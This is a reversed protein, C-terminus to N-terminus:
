RKGDKSRAHARTHRPRRTTAKRSKGATKAFFEEAVAAAFANGLMPLPPCAVQPTTDFAYFTMGDIWLRQLNNVLSSLKRLDTVTVGPTKTVENMAPNDQLMLVGKYPTLHRWTFMFRGNFISHELKQQVRLKGKYKVRKELLAMLLNVFRIHPFPDDKADRAETFAALLAPQDSWRTSFEEFRDTFYKTLGAAFPSFEDLRKWLSKVRKVRRFLFVDCLVHLRETIADHAGDTALAELTGHLEFLLMELWADDTRYWTAFKEWDWLRDFHLAKVQEAVRQSAASLTGPPAGDLVALQYTIRQLALDTRVVNHHNIIWRFQRLREYFFHELAAIARQDFAPVAIKDYGVREIDTIRISEIIRQTDIHGLDRVGSVHPDRRLYDLRDCDVEGSVLQGFPYWPALRNYDEPRIVPREAYHGLQDAALIEAAANVCLLSFYGDENTQEHLNIFIHRTLAIGVMEHLPAGPELEVAITKLFAARLRKVASAFAPHLDTLSPDNLAYEVVHSYPPHGIDHVMAALRTAQFTVIAIWDEEPHTWGADLYLPDPDDTLLKAIKDVQLRHYSREFLEELRPRLPELLRPSSKILNRFLQGAVHMAGISHSFRSGRNNPLTHYASSNQLIRHLRLAEPQGILEYELQSLPVYGYLPDAVVRKRHTV